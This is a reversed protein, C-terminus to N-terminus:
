RKPTVCVGPLPGDTEFAGGHEKQMFKTIMEESDLNACHDSDNSAAPFHTEGGQEVDNLYFLVQIMCDACQFTPFLLNSLECM